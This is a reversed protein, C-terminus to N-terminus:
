EGTLCCGIAPLNQEFAAVLVGDCTDLEGQSADVCMYIVVQRFGDDGGTV